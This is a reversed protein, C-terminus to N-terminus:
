TRLQMRCKTTISAAEIALMVSVASLKTFGIGPRACFRGTENGRSGPQM